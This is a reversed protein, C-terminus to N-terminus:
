KCKIRRKVTPTGSDRAGQRKERNLLIRKSVRFSKDTELGASNQKISYLKEKM